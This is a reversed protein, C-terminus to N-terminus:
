LVLVGRKDYVSQSSGDGSMNRVARDLAMVTAVVGDIKECSRKRDPKMNGAPDEALALNDMMWRMVPSGDHQLQKSLILKILEKTPANMSAYGQRFPVMFVGGDQLEQVIHSANWPDYAVEKVSFTEADRLIQERIFAYDVVNGPTATIFGQTVWSDYQVGDQRSREQMTEEPIWFRPLLRFITNQVVEGTPSRGEVQVPFIYVLASIDTTSALDLGGFCPAGKLAAIDLPSACLDWKALNIARKAAQTWQNLHLRRFSSQYGPTEQAKKCEKAIYEEAITEGLSPNAKRWIVPDTWDDKEDAAFIVGLFEPDDVIGANVREAYRHLEWCISEHSRGATTIAVTLPQERAARATHLTDWLQRNRQVHVEDFIIGSPNIGEQLDADASLVRYVSGTEKALISRRYIECRKKLKSSARIMRSAVDFVISAQSRSGAASYVEGGPEGEAFLLYAAIGSALASKGNKKPVEVYAVRYRRLGDKKRKWGFLPRIIRDRQWPLLKFPKGASKGKIHVLYREFFQEAHKAAAEDFYFEDPM